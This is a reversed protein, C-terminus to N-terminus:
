RLEIRVHRGYGFAGAYRVAVPISQNVWAVAVIGEPSRVEYAVTVLGAVEESDLAVAYLEQGRPEGTLFGASYAYLPDWFVSTYTPRLPKGSVDVPFTDEVVRSGEEMLEVYGGGRDGSSSRTGNFRGRVMFGGDLERMVEYSLFGTYGVMEFAEEFQQGAKLQGMVVLDGLGYAQTTNGVGELARVEKVFDEGQYAGLAYGLVVIFAFSFILLFNVIQWAPSDKRGCLWGYGDFNSPLKLQKRRPECRDRETCHECEVLLLRNMGKYMPVSHINM